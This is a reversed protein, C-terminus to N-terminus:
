KLLTIPFLFDTDSNSLYNDAKMVKAIYPLQMEISHEDEDADISMLEFKGTDLLQKTIERNITLDGLPTQYTSCQTLACSSLRVHHSPGLIFITKVTNPDLQKFSYAATPGSYSYGAHPCIVARAPHGLQDAASLWSSLDRDLQQGNGSYWSNAHSARRVSM